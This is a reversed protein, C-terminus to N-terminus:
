RALTNIARSWDMRAALLSSGAYSLHNPDRYLMTDDIITRCTTLDCLYDPLRLVSIGANEVSDILALVNSRMERYQEAPIDCSAPAGLSIQGKLRRELCAGVDFRGAPPPAVLLVKKGTARIAAATQALTRTALSVSPPVTGRIGMSDRVMVRWEADLYQTFAAGLIVTKISPDQRIFDLVSANFAICGDAWEQDYVPGQVPNSNRIPGLGPMPGCSSKTAQVITKTGSATVFGEVLHMAFSDGWILISPSKGTQCEALRTFQEQFDCRPSLGYNVRRTAWLERDNSSTKMGLPVILTLAITAAATSILLSKTPRIEMRHIPSEIWRFLCYASGVSLALAVVRLSWPIAAPDGLWANRLFAIIPWHVLYLSYSMDGVRSLARVAPLRGPRYRRLIVIATALCILVAPIGPHQVDFSWIPIIFLASVALIAAGRIFRSAALRDAAQPLQTWTAAISGILLEWARSPLLYFAASQDILKSVCFVLSALFLWSLAGRRRGAPLVWLLAPLVFYFQEELSLSWTHLLPMKGSDSAFYGTEKRFHLNATFTVAARVQDALESLERYGLFLPSLVATLLITVYAAPLLRKARRFYFTGFSFTGADVERMVLSTILFGSIVFFIDVGLYGAKAFPIDLHYLVVLLVALGRLAQIDQRILRNNPAPFLANM